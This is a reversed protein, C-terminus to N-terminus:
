KKPSAASTMPPMRMKRSNRTSFSPSSSCAAGVGAGMTASARMSDGRGPLRTTTFSVSSTMTLMAEPSSTSRM